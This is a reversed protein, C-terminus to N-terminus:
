HRRRAEPAVDASGGVRGNLRPKVGLVIFHRMYKRLDVHFLVRIRLLVKELAEIM